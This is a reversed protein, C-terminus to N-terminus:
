AASAVAVRNRGARKAAYLAGDAASVLWPLGRDRDPPLTAVGASSTVRVSQGAIPFPNAEIAARIREAVCRAAAEEEGALIICFEEGGFRTLLDSKRLCSRVVEVFRRLVVDGAIHGHRDNVQKFYDIDLLVLSVLSGTRRARAIEREGLEFLSRRNYVGTLPDTMALHEIEQEHRERHMLLFALSTLIALVHATLAASAPMGVAATGHPSLLMEPAFAAEFARLFLAVGAAVFTGVLLHSGFGPVDSRYRHAVWAIGWAAAGCAAAVLAVRARYEHELFVSSAGVAVAMVVLGTTRERRGHFALLASAQLALGVFAAVNVALISPADPVPGSVGILAYAIGQFLLSASWAGGGRRWRGVAIWILAALTVDTLLLALLLTPVDLPM